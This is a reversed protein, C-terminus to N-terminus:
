PVGPAELLKRTRLKVAVLLMLAALVVGYEIWM